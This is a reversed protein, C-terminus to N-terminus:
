TQSNSSEPCHRTPICSAQICPHNTPGRICRHSMNAHGGRLFM